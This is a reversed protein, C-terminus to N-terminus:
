RQYSNELVCGWIGLRRHPIFEYLSLWPHMSCVLLQYQQSVPNQNTMRSIQSGGGHTVRLCRYEFLPALLAEAWFGIGAEGARTLWVGSRISSTRCAKGPTNTAGYPSCRRSFRPLSDFTSWPLQLRGSSFAGWSNERLSHMQAGLCRCRQFKGSTM